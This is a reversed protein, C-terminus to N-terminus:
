DFLEDPAPDSAEPPKRIRIGGVSEGRMMVNPDHFICIRTGAWADSDLQGTIIEMTDWNTVNLVVGRRIDLSQSPNKVFIVPKSKRKGTTPDVLERLEVRDVECVVEPDFDEKTLYEKPLAEYKRM